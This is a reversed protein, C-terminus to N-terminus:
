SRIARYSMGGRRLEVVRERDYIKKPRGLEKGERRARDIGANVRKIHSEREQQALAALVGIIADGFPGMTDLYPQTFSRWKVGYETLRQLHQLTKLVGERSLRSLDWFLLCDFKKQSAGVFMAKFKARDSSAGSEQDVYETVIEWDPQKSCYDRLQHLQNSVDQKDKTSTRAYLAVRM